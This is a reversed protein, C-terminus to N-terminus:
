RDDSPRCSRAARGGAFRRALAELRDLVYARDAPDAARIARRLDRLAAALRLDDGPRARTLLARGPPQNDM